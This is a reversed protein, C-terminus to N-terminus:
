TMTYRDHQITIIVYKEAIQMVFIRNYDSVALLKPSFYHSCCPFHPLLRSSESTRLM